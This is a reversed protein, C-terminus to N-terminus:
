RSSGTRPDGTEDTTDVALVVRRDGLRVAEVLAPQTTLQHHQTSAAVTPLAVAEGAACNYLPFGAQSTCTLAVLRRRLSPGVVCSTLLAVERPAVRLHRM